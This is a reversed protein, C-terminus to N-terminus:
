GMGSLLSTRPPNKDCYLEVYAAALKAGALVLNWFAMSENDSTDTEDDTDDDSQMSTFFLGHLIGILSLVVVCLSFFSMCLSFLVYMCWYM